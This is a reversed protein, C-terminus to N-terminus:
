KVESRLPWENDMCGVEFYSENNTKVTYDLANGDVSCGGVERQM